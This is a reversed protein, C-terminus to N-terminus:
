RLLLMKKIEEFEGAKLKYFYIGSTVSKNQDDKGDWVVSHQGSSLQNRFLQKVKQGKINYISLEVNSNNQLSFSLTTTPNFPNPYNSLGIETQIIENEALVSSNLKAVFIDVWGNSTLSYSGFVATGRFGGTVYCNGADDLTIENGKDAHIGGAKVAWLWNGGVDIKAVFIDIDGSSLLSYFGFSATGEFGGTVYINGIDDITIGNVGDWDCGGAQIAWLWNGNVDMKAVFIDVYGNSNLSYSGFTATEGFRGTVYCSESDAIIGYGQDHWSGGAKTAWLWNGDTDMKAVFIDVYGSSNLSYSGFTATEEFYGTVYSNGADDLTIGYGKDGDNGGAKTAWLWNGIADMKAVFIDSSGSSTLSYSGFSATGGFCGTVYISGANDITIGYGSEGILLSGGAQTVWQWNGGADMKAVFIDSGGSSTLSYFGFTVTGEFWGTVYSSGVDDITIGLGTAWDSGGAQAAWQWEPAQAFLKINLSFLLLILLFCTKRM